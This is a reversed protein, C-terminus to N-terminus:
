HIHTLLDIFYIEFGIQTDTDGRYKRSSAHNPVM